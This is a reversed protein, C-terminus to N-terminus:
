IALAPIVLDLLDDVHVLFVALIPPRDDVVLAVVLDDHDVLVALNDPAALGVVYVDAGVIANAAVRGVPDRVGGVVAPARPDLVVLSRAGHLLDQVALTAIG